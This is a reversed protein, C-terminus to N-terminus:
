EDPTLGAALARALLGVAVVNRESITYSHVMSVPEGDANISRLEIVLAADLLEADDPVEPDAELEELIRAAFQALEQADLSM